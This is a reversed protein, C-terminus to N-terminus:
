CLMDHYETKVLPVHALGRDERRAVAVGGGGYCQGLSYSIFVCIIPGASFAALNLLQVKKAAFGYALTAGYAETDMVRNRSRICLRPGRHRRTRTGIARTCPITAIGGRVPLVAGDHGGHHHLPRDLAGCQQRVRRHM